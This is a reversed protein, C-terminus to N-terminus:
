PGSPKIPVPLGTPSPTPTLSASPDVSTDADNSPAPYSNFEILVAQRPFTDAADALYAQIVSGEQLSSAPVPETQIAPVPDTVFVNKVIRTSPALTIEYEFKKLEEPSYDSTRAQDVTRTSVTNITVSRDTARTVTGSLSKELQPLEIEVAKFEQATVSRLDVGARVIVRQGKRIDKISLPTSRVPLGTKEEYDLPAAHQLIKTNKDLRVRYKLSGNVSEVRLSDDRADVVTVPLSTVPSTLDFIYPSIKKTSFGQFLPVGFVVLSVITLGISIVIIRSNM